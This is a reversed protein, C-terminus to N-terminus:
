ARRAGATVPARRTIARRSTAPRRRAKEGGDPAGPSSAPAANAEASQRPGGIACLVEEEILECITNRLVTIRQDHQERFDMLLQALEVHVVAELARDHWELASLERSLLENLKDIVDRTLM